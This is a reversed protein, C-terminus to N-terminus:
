STVIVKHGPKVMMTREMTNIGIVRDLRTM